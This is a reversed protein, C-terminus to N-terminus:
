CASIPATIMRATNSSSNRFRRLEYAGNAHLDLVSYSNNEPGSGEIMAALTVYPIGDIEKREYKHSHGQM